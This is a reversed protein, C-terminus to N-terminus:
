KSVTRVVVFFTVRCQLKKVEVRAPNPLHAHEGREVPVDGDSPERNTILRGKCARVTCRWNITSTHKKGKRYLYGRFSILNGEKKLSPLEM